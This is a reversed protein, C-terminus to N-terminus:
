VGKRRDCIVAVQRGGLHHALLMESNTGIWDSHLNAATATVGHKVVGPFSLGVPGDTGVDEALEAVFIAV